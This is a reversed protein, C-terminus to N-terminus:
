KMLGKFKLDFYGEFAENASIGKEALFKPDVLEQFFFRDSHALIAPHLKRFVGKEIGENYYQELVHSAHDYFADVQLWLKPYLSQIDTLLLNSIDTLIPIMYEMLQLYREELGLNEDLLIDEFGLLAELKYSITEAVIEEKSTFYEYVTSKSKGLLKAVGDMRLDKLGNDRFYPYLEIIWERRKKPNDKRIRNSSKRGM